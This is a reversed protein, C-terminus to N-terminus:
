AHAAEKTLQLQYTKIIFSFHVTVLMFLLEYGLVASSYALAGMMDLPFGPPRCLCRYRFSDDSTIM